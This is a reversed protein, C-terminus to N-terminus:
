AIVKSDITVDDVYFTQVLTNDATDVGVNVSGVTGLGSVTTSCISAGDMTLSLQSGTYGLELSHWAGTPLQASCTVSKNSGTYLYLNALSPDYYVWAIFVGGSTYLSILNAEGWTSTAQANFWAKAYVTSQATTFTKTVYANGVSSKNLSVKLAYTGSHVPSTAIALTANTSTTSKSWAGPLTGSEFGDCFLAMCTNPAVGAGSLSASHPSGVANDTVQVSASDSQVITPSFTVSITCSAGATLSTPCANTQSFQDANTGGIAIGSISLAATGTNKLTISQAASSSNVTVSGFSLSSPTLSVAPAPTYGTGSLSVSHPSGAANDTISISATESANQSPTFTVSMTCNAGAALTSTGTPCTNTQAFDSANAGALSIGSISLAATGTNTLTVTQAASTVGVAVSGFSLSTPSLGVGPASATTGSGSLNVAQPSDSANDAISISATRTGSASPTFTVSMTCNAGAALTSTGTPCTNTQAFDSANAGALSIGSISLAATGTNTLTVTQAASTTNVTQSSFTLSTPSLTVAPAPPPASGNMFANLINSTTRKIGANVFNGNSSYNDLGWSWQITGAAFVQAGSAATYLSSNSDSHGSGECCGVVPSNSLVTLGAPTFGNNWVKDYEYGVIGPVSSGNVFGTGAYVWNSANQVVYAYNNNVQDQYMVGIVGNEPQNVVPDRWNTTTISNNVGYQPDPGPATSATAFDKYGVEVRDAVGAANPEFRIQWYMSNASFFAVNVGANIANQVNTRMPRSWYEDHGVSLFEKHNTLPNTNTDTDVDTTYTINYGQSEAWRVLPYEYYLYHGAGNSDFPDFPRDFSVKTAHPYKYVSGNTNNTYLSVGGWANYAQYTSVSTQFDIPETGGDNRVVFYIFSKNGSSANLRALYVGTVWTSPISLTTTKTWNTCAVIGTVPDPAPIAQHVGPFPGLKTILRAGAGGYWGTRYVSITFNAATTTVYLDLSDGHNVSIKSGFGSIADQKGVSAFDNWTPDGPLNNEVQIPNPSAAHAVPPPTISNVAG